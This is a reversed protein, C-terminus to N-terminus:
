SYVTETIEPGMYGLQSENWNGTSEPMNTWFVKTETYGSLYGIM